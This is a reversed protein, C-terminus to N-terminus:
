LQRLQGRLDFALDTKRNCVLICPVNVGWAYGVELYVNPNAGSLDAVIVKSSAIRKRMRDVIDGTFSIEDMKECLLGVARISPDIAYYFVDEYSKRFPVAAFAHPREASDYGVSDIRRLRSKGKIAYPEATEKEADDSSLLTVLSDRIRDARGHSKEIISVALLSQPYQGSDLAEVIGAIESEFAETEDLGFGIGHMTMSIEHVPLSLRAASVIARRSFERISRYDFAAIPQVGLLLLNRPALGSPEQILLNEGLAPLTAADIGAVDIARKDVGYSAQAYKLVLLDSSYRLADGQIVKLEVGHYDM